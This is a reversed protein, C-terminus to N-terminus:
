HAPPNGPDLGNRKTGQRDFEFLILMVITPLKHPNKIRSQSFCLSLSLSRSTLSAKGFLQKENALAQM